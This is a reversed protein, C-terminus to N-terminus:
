IVLFFCVLDIGAANNYRHVHVPFFFLPQDVELVLCVVMRRLDLRKTTRCGAKATCDTVWQWSTSINVLSHTHCTRCVRSYWHLLSQIALQRLSFQHCTCGAAVAGITVLNTQGCTKNIFDIMRIIHCFTHFDTRHHCCRRSAINDSLSRIRSINNNEQTSTCATIAAATCCAGWLSM